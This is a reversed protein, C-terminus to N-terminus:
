GARLKNLLRYALLLVMAGVISAIVGPTQRGHYLGAARGVYGALFSGAGVVLGVILMWLYHM